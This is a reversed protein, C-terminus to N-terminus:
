ARISLGRASRQMLAKADRQRYNKQWLARRTSGAARKVLKDAIESDLTAAFYPTAHRIGSASHENRRQQRRGDGSARCRRLRRRRDSDYRWRRRRCRRGRRRRRHRVRLVLDAIGILDRADPIVRLFLRVVVLGADGGPVARSKWPRSVAFPSIKSRVIMEAACGVSGIGTLTRTVLRSLPREITTRTLSRPGKTRPRM